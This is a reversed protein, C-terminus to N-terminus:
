TSARRGRKPARGTSGGHGVVVQSRVHNWSCDRCVEVTYVRAEKYSLLPTLNTRDWVKGNEIKPLEDSFVYSVLVVPGRECVPCPETTVEGCYNAARILDPHADCIDYRSLRGGDFARLVAKRALSYDVRAGNGGPTPQPRSPSQM